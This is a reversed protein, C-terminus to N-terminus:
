RSALALAADAAREMAAGRKGFLVDEAVNEGEDGKFSGKRYNETEVVANVVGWLTGKAAKSDMGRGAGQFLEFAGERFVIRRSRRYEWRKMRHEVVEAPADGRPVTPDPYAERIVRKAQATTAKTGALLVFAERLLDTKSEAEAYADRLWDAMRARASEDHVIRYQAQARAQAMRLTNACVVRLPWVEATAATTFSYTAGLYMEVEDGKVDIAPLRFTVFGREGHGLIGMTEVPKAIHEDCVTAVDAMTIPQYGESVVNFTRYEPDDATPHRMAARYGAVPITAGDVVVYIPEM